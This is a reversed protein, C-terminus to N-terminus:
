VTKFEPLKIGRALAYDIVDRPKLSQGASPIKFYATVGVKIALKCLYNKEEDTGFKHDSM